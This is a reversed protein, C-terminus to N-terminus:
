ATRNSEAFEASAPDIYWPEFGVVRAFLLAAAAVAFLSLGMRIILKVAFVKKAFQHLCVNAELRDITWNPNGLYKKLLIDYASM